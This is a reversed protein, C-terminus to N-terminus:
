THGVARLTSIVPHARGAGVRASVAVLDWHVTPHTRAVWAVVTPVAAHEATVYGVSCADGVGAVARFQGAHM